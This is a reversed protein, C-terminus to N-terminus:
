IMTTIKRYASNYNEALKTNTIEDYITKYLTFLKCILIFDYLIDVM